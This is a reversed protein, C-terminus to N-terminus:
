SDYEELFKKFSIAIDKPLIEELDDLSAKKM